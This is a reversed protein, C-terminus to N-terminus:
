YLIERFYKNEKGNIFRDILKSELRTLAFAQVSLSKSWDKRYSDTVINGINNTRLYECLERMDEEHKSTIINFYLKDKSLKDNIKFAIFSGIGSAVSVALIVLLNNESVVKSIVFYFLFQSIIILLSAAIAKNKHVLISKTTTLFNDLVKLFSILITTLIIYNLGKL